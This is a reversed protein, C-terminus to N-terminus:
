ILFIISIVTSMNTNSKTSITSLLLSLRPPNKKEELAVSGVLICTINVYIFGVLLYIVFGRSCIIRKINVVYHSSPVCTPILHLQYPGWFNNKKELAVSEVLISRLHSFFFPNFHTEGGNQIYDLLVVMIKISTYIYHNYAIQKFSLVHVSKLSLDLM